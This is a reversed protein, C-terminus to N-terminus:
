MGSSDVDLLVGETCPDCSLATGSCVLRLRYVEVRGWRPTPRLPALTRVLPLSHLLAWLPNPPAPGLPLGSTAVAGPDVLVPRTDACTATRCLATADITIVGRVLVTRGLWAVPDRAMATQVSGVPYVAPPDAVPGSGVSLWTGMVVLVLLMAVPLRVRRPILNTREM